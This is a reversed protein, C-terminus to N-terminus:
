GLLYSEWYGPTLDRLSATASPVLHIVFKSRDGETTEFHVNDILDLMEQESKEKGLLSSYADVLCTAGWKAHHSTWIQKDYRSIFFGKIHPEEADLAIEDFQIEGLMTSM